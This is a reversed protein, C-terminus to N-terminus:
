SASLCAIRSRSITPGSGRHKSLSIQLQRDCKKLIRNVEKSDMEFLRSIAELSQGYYHAQSFIQREREPWQDLTNSIEQFLDERKMKLSAAQV